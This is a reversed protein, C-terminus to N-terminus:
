SEYRVDFIWRVHTKPHIATVDPRKKRAGLPADTSFYELPSNSIVQLWRAASVNHVTKVPLCGVAREAPM